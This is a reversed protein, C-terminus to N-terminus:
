AAAGVGLASELAAVVEEAPANDGATESTHQYVVRDPPLIVMVGGQQLADGQTRGQFAGRSMARLAYVASKPTVLRWASRHLGAAAYSKLEPDCYIPGDFRTLERFGQVFHPKGSGVVVLEAGAAHIREIQQHLQVVHERCFM